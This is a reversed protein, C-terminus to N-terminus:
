RAVKQRETGHNNTRCKGRLAPISAVESLIATARAVRATEFLVVVEVDGTADASPSIPDPMAGGHVDMLDITGALRNNTPAKYGVSIQDCAIDHQRL